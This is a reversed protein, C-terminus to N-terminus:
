KFFDNKLKDRINEFLGSWDGIKKQRFITVSSYWKTNAKDSFWRWDAIYPIAIWTKKGLTASLHGIATDSTIVLDLNKIIETSDIFAKESKDMDPFYIFNKNKLIKKIDNSSINQQLIFFKANIDKSLKNFNEFPIDKEVMLSSTSWHIGIKIGDINKIKKEWKLKTKNDSQFFNIAKYFIENTKLLIKPLSLMFIHYDHKPLKKIDTIIEFDEHQFFHSFNKNKIKLVINAAYKDKLLFLYRGFQILDGIGQEAIVFLKKNKINEGSWIKSKLNLSRYDIYDLFSTSKKRWEYEKFGEELKGNTLLMTAYNVHADVYNKDIKIAKAYFELAKNFNGMRKHAIGLNNYILANNPNIKISKEFFKIAQEFNNETLFINGINYIALFNNKNINFSEKYFKIAKDFIKQDHFFKGYNYLLLADHPKLKLCKKFVQDAKSFEKIESLLTAYNQLIVLNQPSKKLLNEYLEKAKDFEKKGHYMVASKFINELM